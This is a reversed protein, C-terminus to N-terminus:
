ITHSTHLVASFDAAASGYFQYFDVSAAANKRITLHAFGATSNRPYRPSGGNICTIGDIQEFAQKHTHGYVAVPCRAAKAANRLRATDLKVHYEHGHTLLIPLGAITIHQDLPVTLHKKGADIQQPVAYRIIDCNGRALFIVPPVTQQAKTLLAVAALIDPVGDGAFLCADFPMSSLIWALAETADHIDACILVSATDKKYLTEFVSLDAIIGDAIFRNCM